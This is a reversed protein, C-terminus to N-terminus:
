GRPMALLRIAPWVAMLIWVAFMEYGELDFFMGKKECPLGVNCYEQLKKPHFSKKRKSSAMAALIIVFFRKVFIIKSAILKTTIVSTSQM